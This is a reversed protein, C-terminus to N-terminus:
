AEWMTHWQTDPPRAAHAPQSVPTCYSSKMIGEAHLFNRWCTTRLLKQFTERPLTNWHYLHNVGLVCFLESIHRVFLQSFFVILYFIQQFPKLFLDSNLIRFHGSCFAVATLKTRRASTQTVGPMPPAVSVLPVHSHDSITAHASVPVSAIDSHSIAPSRNTDSHLAALHTANQTAM